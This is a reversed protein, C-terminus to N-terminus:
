CEPGRRKRPPPGQLRLRQRRRRPQDGRPGVGDPPRDDPSVRLVALDIEGDASEHRLSEIEYPRGDLGTVSIRAVEHASTMDVGALVHKCTAVIGPAVFFGTGSAGRPLVIRVTTERLLAIIEAADTVRRPGGGSVRGVRAHGQDHRHRHGERRARDRRHFQGGCRIGFEVKARDPRVTDVARGVKEAVAQISETLNEFKFIEGSVDEEGSGDTRVEVLIETGGELVAPLVRRDDELL